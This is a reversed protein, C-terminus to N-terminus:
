ASEDPASETPPRAPLRKSGPKQRKEWVWYAQYLPPDLMRLHIRSLGTNIWQAYYHQIFEYPNRGGRALLDSWPVPATTPIRVMLRQSDKAGEIHPAFGNADLAGIRQNADFRAVALIIKIAEASIELEELLPILIKEIDIMNAEFGDGGTSRSTM